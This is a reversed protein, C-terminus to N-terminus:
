ELGILEPRDPRARHVRQDAADSLPDHKLYTPSRVCHRLYTPRAECTIPFPCRPTGEWRDHAM